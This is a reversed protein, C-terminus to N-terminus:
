GALRFGRKRALHRARRSGGLRRLKARNAIARSGGHAICSRRSHQGRGGPGAKWEAQVVPAINNNMGIIAFAMPIPDFKTFSRAETGAKLLEVLRNLYQRLTSRVAARSIAREGARAAADFLVCVASRLGPFIQLHVHLAVFTWLDEAPTHNPLLRDHATLM